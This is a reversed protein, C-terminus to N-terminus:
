RAAPARPSRRRRPRCKEPLVRFDPSLGKPRTSHEAARRNGRQEALQRARRLQHTRPARSSGRFPSAREACRPRLWRPKSARSSALKSRATSSKSAQLPRTTTVPMPLDPNIPRFIAAVNEEVPVGETKKCGASASCPSRPIIIGAIDHQGNGVAAFGFLDSRQQLGDLPQPQRQDRQGAM